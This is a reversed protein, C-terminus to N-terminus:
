RRTANTILKSLPSVIAASAARRCPSFSASASSQRSRKRSPASFASHARPEPLIFRQTFLLEVGELAHDAFQGHIELDQLRRGRQARRRRPGTAPRTHYM